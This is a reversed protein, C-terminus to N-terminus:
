RLLLSDITKPTLNHHCRRPSLTSIPAALLPTESINDTGKEARVRFRRHRDLTYLASPNLVWLFIPHPVDHCLSTMIDSFRPSGWPPWTPQVILGLKVQAVCQSSCPQSSYHAPSYLGSNSDFAKRNLEVSVWTSAGHWACGRNELIWSSYSRTEARVPSATQHSSSTADTHVALM